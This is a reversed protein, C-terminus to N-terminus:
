LDKAIIAINENEKSIYSFEHLKQDARYVKIEIRLPLKSASPTRVRDETGAQFADVKYTYNHRRLHEVWERLAQAEALSDPADIIRQALSELSGAATTHVNRSEEVTTTTTTTTSTRTCGAVAILVSIILLKKM